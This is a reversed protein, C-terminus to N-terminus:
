ADSNQSIASASDGYQYLKKLIPLRPHFKIVDASGHARLPPNCSRGLSTLKTAAEIRNYSAGALLIQFIMHVNRSIAYDEMIPVFNRRFLAALGKSFQPRRM